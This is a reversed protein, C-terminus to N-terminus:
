LCIRLILPIRRIRSLSSSTNAAVIDTYLLMSAGEKSDKQLLADSRKGTVIPMLLALLWLQCLLQTSIGMTREASERKHVSHSSYM